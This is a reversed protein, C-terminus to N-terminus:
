FNLLGQESLLPLLGALKLLKVATDVREQRESSLHPRLALLLRTRDDSQNSMGSLAKGLTMMMQMDGPSVSPMSFGGDAQENEGGGSDPSEGGGMNGLLSGALSRLNEMGEPSELIESLKSALDDM